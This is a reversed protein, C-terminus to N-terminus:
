VEDKKLRKVNIPTVPSPNIFIRWRSKAIVKKKSFVEVHATVDSEPQIKYFPMDSGTTIPTGALHIEEEKDMFALPFDHPRSDPELTKGVSSDNWWKAHRYILENSITTFEVEVHCDVAAERNCFHRLLSDRRLNIVPIFWCCPSELEYDYASELEGKNFIGSKAEGFVIKPKSFFISLLIRCMTFVGVIGGIITILTIWNASIWDGVYTINM